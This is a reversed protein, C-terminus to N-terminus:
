SHPPLAICDGKVAHSSDIVPPHSSCCVNLAYCCALLAPLMTPPSISCIHGRMQSQQM